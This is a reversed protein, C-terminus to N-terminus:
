SPVAQLLDFATLIGAVRGDNGVLVRHVGEERMRQAVESARADPAVWVADPSFVDRVTLTDLRDGLPAGEVEPEAVDIDEDFLQDIARLLDGVTLVGHVAGKADVVPAGGIQAEVFLHQVELFPADPLVTIPPAKM